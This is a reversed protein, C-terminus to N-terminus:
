KTKINQPELYSTDLTKKIWDYGNALEKLYKRPIEPNTGAKCDGLAQRIDYVRLRSKGDACKLM